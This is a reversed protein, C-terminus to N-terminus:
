WKLAWCQTQTLSTMFLGARTAFTDFVDPALRERNKTLSSRVLMVAIEPAGIRLLFVVFVLVWGDGCGGSVESVVESVVTCGGGRLLVPISSVFALEIRFIFFWLCFCVSITILFVPNEQLEWYVFM